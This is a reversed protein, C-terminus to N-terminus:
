RVVEECGSLKKLHRIFHGAFEGAIEPTGSIWWIPDPLVQSLRDYQLCLLLFKQRPEARDVADFLLGAFTHALATLASAEIRGTETLLGMRRLRERAGDDFPNHARSARCNNTTEKM